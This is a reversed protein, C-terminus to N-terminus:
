QPAEKWNYLTDEATMAGKDWTVISKVLMYEKNNSDKAYSIEIHRSYVPNTSDHIYRTGNFSMQWTSQAAPGATETIAPSNYNVIAYIPCASNTFPEPVCGTKILGAFWKTVGDEAEKIWNTHRINHIVELGEQALHAAILQKQVFTGSQITQTTLAIAGAIGTGLISIAIIVELLSFGKNM